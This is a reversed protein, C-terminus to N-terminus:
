SQQWRAPRSGGSKSSLPWMSRPSPTSLPHGDMSVVVLPLRWEHARCLTGLLTAVVEMPRRAPRFGVMWPPLMTLTQRLSQWMYMEGWKLPAAMLCSPRRNELLRADKRPGHLLVIDSDAWWVIREMDLAKLPREFARWAMHMHM